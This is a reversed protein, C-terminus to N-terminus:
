GGGSVGGTDAGIQTKVQQMDSELGSVRQIVGELTNQQIVPDGPDGQPINDTIKDPQIKEFVEKHPPKELLGEKADKHDKTDKTDKHEKPDKHDKQDKQEKPDKQDKPDKQEKPDKQDKHDKTDKQDKQDKPDKNDKNDKQDKHEKPDKHEKTDKRDKQEKFAEKFADKILSKDLTAEKLKAQQGAGPGLIASLDRVTLDGVKQNMDITLDPRQDQAIFPEQATQQPEMDM